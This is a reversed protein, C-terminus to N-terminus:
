NSFMYQTIGIAGFLGLAGFLLVGPLNILITCFYLGLASAASLLLLNTQGDFYFLTGAFGFGLMAVFRVIPYSGVAGLGICIGLVLNLAGLITIPNALIGGLDLTTILDIHPLMYAAATLVLIALCAYGGIAAARSQAEVPDVRDKTDATRGEAALLMDDVTIAQENDRVTNLNKVQADSKPKIRLVKKAPFLTEMLFPNGSIPAWAESAADYFYTETDAQGNEALSVLQELNFPGRAETESAKRIYYEQTTSM